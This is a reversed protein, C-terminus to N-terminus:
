TTRPRPPTMRELDSEYAHYSGENRVPSLEENDDDEVPSPPPGRRYRTNYQHKSIEPQASDDGSDGGDRDDKSSWGATSDSPGSSKDARRWSCVFEDMHSSDGRREPQCVIRYHGHHVMRNECGRRNAMRLPISLILSSYERHEEGVSRHLVYAKKLIANRRKLDSSTDPSFHTLNTPYQVRSGQFAHRNSLLGAVQHHNSGVTHSLRNNDDRPYLPQSASNM